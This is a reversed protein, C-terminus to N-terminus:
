KIEGKIKIIGSEDKYFILDGKEYFEGDYVVTNKKDLLEWISMEEFRKNPTKYLAIVRMPQHTGELTPVDHILSTYPPALHRAKGGAWRDVDITIFLHKDTTNIIYSANQLLEWSGNKRQKLRAIMNNHVCGAVILIAFLLYPSYINKIM